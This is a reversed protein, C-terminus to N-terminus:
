VKGQLVEIKSKVIKWVQGSLAGLVLGIIVKMGTPADAPHVITPIFSVGVGLVLPLWPLIMHWVKSEAAKTHEVATKLAEIVGVIAIMICLNRFSLMQDSFNLENLSDVAAKVEHVATSSVHSITASIHQLAASADRVIEVPGPM